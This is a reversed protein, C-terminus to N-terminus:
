NKGKKDGMLIKRVEPNEKLQMEYPHLYILFEVVGKSVEVIDQIEIRGRPANTNPDSLMDYIVHESAANFLVWCDKGGAVPVKRPTIYMRLEALFKENIGLKEELEELNKYSHIWKNLSKRDYKYRNIVGKLVSNLIDLDTDGEGVRGFWGDKDFNKLIHHSFAITLAAYSRHPEDSRRRKKECYLPVLDINVDAIMKRCKDIIFEKIDESTIRYVFINGEPVLGEHRVKHALQIPDVDAKVVAKKKCTPCEYIMELQKTAM